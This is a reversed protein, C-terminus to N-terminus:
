RVLDTCTKGTSHLVVISVLPIKQGTTMHVKTGHSVSARSIAESLLLPPFFLLKLLLHSIFPTARQCFHVHFLPFGAVSM